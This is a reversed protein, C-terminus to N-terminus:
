PGRRKRGKPPLWIGWKVLQAGWKEMLKRRDQLRRSRNYIARVGQPVHALCLEIVDPDEDQEHAWTSFVSRFGHAVHKQYFGARILMANLSNESIVGSRSFGPFVLDDGFARAFELVRLAPASLCAIHGERMKMKQAPIRWEGAAENIEQWEAARVEGPRVATLILFSMAARMIAEASTANLRQLLDPMEGPEVAPMHRVPRVTLAGKLMAAPDAACRHTIIGFRFVESAIRRAKHAMEVAGREEVKRLALLVDPARIEAIPLQGLIPLLNRELHTRQAGQHKPNWKGRAREFWEWAVAEFTNASAIADRIKERKRELVPDTGTKAKEQIEAALQRAQAVTVQPFKGLAALKERGAIFFKCRWLKGGTPTVVLHLGAHGDWLKLAKPGPQQARIKADSLALPM